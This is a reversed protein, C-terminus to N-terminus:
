IKYSPKRVGTVFQVLMAPLIGFHKEFYQFRSQAFIKKNQANDRVSRGELHIVKAKPYMYIKYGLKRMRRCLDTEEFYLFFREDFGHLEEFIKRRIVFAAGQIVGVEKTGKKDWSHLFYRRSIANEPFYKNIFSHAVMGEVPTLETTVQIHCPTGDKNILLPAVIGVGPNKQLFEVLTDIAGHKVITDPNLFFLFEGHAKSAGLNNGAGFGINGLSKIYRAEIFKKALEPKVTEDEDNDVVIIEYSFSPKSKRISSLCDFLEKKAKYHVIIISLDIKRESM